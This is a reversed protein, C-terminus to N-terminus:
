PRSPSQYSGEHQTSAKLPHYLIKIIMISLIFSSNVHSIEAFAIAGKTWAVADVLDVVESIRAFM